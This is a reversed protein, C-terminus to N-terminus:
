RASRRKLENSVFAGGWLGIASFKLVKAMRKHGRKKLENAGGIVGVAVIAKTAVRLATNRILGAEYLGPQQLGRYTSVEDAVGAAIVLGDLVDARASSGLLMLVLACRKM